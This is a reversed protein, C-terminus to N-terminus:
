TTLGPHQDRRYSVLGGRDVADRCRLVTHNVVTDLLPHGSALLDAVVSAPRRIHERDFTVQEYRSLVAGAPHREERLAAPVGSLAFRGPERATIRGGLQAFAARFFGAVYHPQLRRARAEEMELRTREVDALSLTDQHLAREAVLRDLGDGVRSDIVRELQARTEPLDGYRVANILLTRLPAGAFAEGLVDFVKGGLAARQEEIKELLQHFMEGERTDVAVLNWLHCVETQGIRHIRGFRQEIRNPNWALDYNVMLHARQLNLGEGAADTCVLVTLDPDQRFRDQV